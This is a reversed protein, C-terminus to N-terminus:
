EPIEIVGKLFALCNGSIVVRDGELRCWLDGGRASLQRSHLETRGLRQAWLPVLIRHATGCVPDESLGLRPAFVRLTFDSQDGPSTAILTGCDLQALAQMDPRLKRVQDPNDYIALCGFQSDLTEAPLSGLATGIEHRRDCATAPMVPWPVAIRSDERSITRRSGDGLALTMENHASGFTEFAVYAAAMMAHGAGGHRGERTHFNVSTAQGPSVLLSALVLENLQGALAQM